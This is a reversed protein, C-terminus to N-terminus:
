KAKDNFYKYALSKWGILWKSDSQCNSRLVMEDKEDNVAEGV